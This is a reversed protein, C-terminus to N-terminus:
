PIDIILLCRVATAVTTQTAQALASSHFFCNTLAPHLELWIPPRPPRLLTQLLRQATM